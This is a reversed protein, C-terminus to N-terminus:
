LLSNYEEYILKEYDDLLKDTGGSLQIKKVMDLSFGFELLNDYREDITKNELTNSIEYSIM